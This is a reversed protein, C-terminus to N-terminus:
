TAVSFVSGRKSSAALVRGLVRRGGGGRLPPALRGQFLNLAPLRYSARM